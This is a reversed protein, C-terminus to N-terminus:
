FLDESFLLCDDVRLIELPVSLFPLTVILKLPSSVWGLACKLLVYGVTCIHHSFAKKATPWLGSCGRFGVAGHSLFCYRILIRKGYQDLDPANNVLQALLDVVIILNIISFWSAGEHRQLSSRKGWSQLSRYKESVLKQEGSTKCM